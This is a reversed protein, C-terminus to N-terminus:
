LTAKFKLLWSGGARKAVQLFQDATKQLSSIKYTISQQGMSFTYSIQGILISKPQSFASIPQFIAPQSNNRASCENTKYEIKFKM